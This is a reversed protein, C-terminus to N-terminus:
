LLAPGRVGGGFLGRLHGARLARRPACPGPPFRRPEPGCLDGHRHRHKGAAREHPKQTKGAATVAAVATPFGAPQVASQIMVSGVATITCQLGMASLQRCLAADPRSEGPQMKLMTFRRLMYVLSAVGSIAQSLNTALAAGFVGMDFSIIFYLDLGVNLVSTLVLFYLPTKSDGLARMIAAVMNYLFVFPIGAFIWGIYTCSNEIIDSPTQMLQMIPRTLAVTSVTLVVGWGVCLWAANAVRRRMLVMDRAGFAQAIPIAFGNCIGIVFGLILYNM